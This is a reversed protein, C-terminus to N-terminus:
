GQNTTTTTTPAVTTTTTTTPCPGLDTFEGQGDSSYQGQLACFYYPESGSVSFVQQEGNCDTYIVNFRQVPSGVVSYLICIPLVTTSTSTTSPVCCEWATVETWKGIKPKNKRLILSSPVVRGSGDIRVYAKLSKDITAM